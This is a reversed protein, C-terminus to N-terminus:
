CGSQQVMKLVWASSRNNVSVSSAQHQGGCKLGTAGPGLLRPVDGLSNDWRHNHFHGPTPHLAYPHPTCTYPTPRLPTSHLHLTYPTPTHFAPTPHLAYPHPTCTYPTPRLPTSPLYIFYPIPRLLTSHLHLTHSM